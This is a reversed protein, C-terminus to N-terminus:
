MQPVNRCSTHSLDICNTCFNLHHGPTSGHTPLVYCDWAAFSLTGTICTLVDLSDQRFHAVSATTESSSPFLRFALM